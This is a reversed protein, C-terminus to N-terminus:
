IIFVRPKAKRKPPKPHGFMLVAANFTAMLLDIKASGAVAKTVTYNSGRLETKANGVNWGMLGSRGHLFKGDKLRRPLTLVAQQLQYGQGVSFFRGAYDRAELEDLLKAIGFSDLGIAPTENPLLGANELRDIVDCAEYVEQGIDECTVYEGAREADDLVPVIDPRRERVDSYGWGKAWHLWKGSGKERGIVALGFLDDLGGGDAGVVAVESRRILEDLTLDPRACDDWYRAGPWIALGGVVGVEVNFHQSALLAMDKDDGVEAAALKVALSSADFAAGMSPNVLGWTEPAKWGDKKSLSEPLEYLVALLPLVLSGDRVARAKLLEARFVGTPKDKSQTTIMMFFGDPRTLLGGRLEVMIKAADKSESLEHLEDILVYAAKSGTVVSLDAAKVELVAQTGLHTIRNVGEQVKFLASLDGDAEIIGVAVSFSIGAVKKSPAVLVLECAPRENLILATVMIAASILSKGNKKPVLLFIESIARRKTEPDYAGFIVRVLDFVWEGCVEGYTPKGVLDPVRLRKFIRM